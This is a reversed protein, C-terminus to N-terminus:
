NYARHRTFVKLFNGIIEVLFHSSLRNVVGDTTFLRVAQILPTAKLHVM